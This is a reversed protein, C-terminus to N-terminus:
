SLGGGCTSLSCISLGAGVGERRSCSAALPVWLVCVPLLLCCGPAARKVLVGVGPLSGRGRVAVAHTGPAATAFVSSCASLHCPNIKERDSAPLGVDLLSCLRNVGPKCVEGWTRVPQGEAHSHGSRKKRYPCDCQLLATGHGHKVGIEEKFVRDGRLARRLILAGIPPCLGVRLVLWM